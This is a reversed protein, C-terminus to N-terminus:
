TNNTIIRMNNYKLVYLYNIKKGVIIWPKNLKKMIEVNIM